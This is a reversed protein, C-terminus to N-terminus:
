TVCDENDETLLTEDEQVPVVVDSHEEVGPVGVLVLHCSATPEHGHVVGYMREHVRVVSSPSSPQPNRTGKGHDDCSGLDQLHHHTQSNQAQNVKPDVLHLTRGVHIVNGPSGDHVEAVQNQKGHEEIVGVESAGGGFDFCGLCILTRQRLKDAKNM